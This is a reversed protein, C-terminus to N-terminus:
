LYRPPPILIRKNGNSVKDAPNHFKHKESQIINFHHAFVTKVFEDEFEVKKDIEKESKNKDFDDVVGISDFNFNQFLDHIPSFFMAFVFFCMIFTNLIRIKSTNKLM